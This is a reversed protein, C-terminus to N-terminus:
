GAVVRMAECRKADFLMVEISRLTDRFFNLALKMKKKPFTVPESHGSAFAGNPLLQASVEQADLITMGFYYKPEQEGIKSVAFKQQASLSSSIFLLAIIFRKM